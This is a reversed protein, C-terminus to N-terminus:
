FGEKLNPFDKLIDKALVNTFLKASEGFMHHGDPFQYDSPQYFYNLYPVELMGAIEKIKHDFDPYANEEYEWLEQVVPLRVIFVQGHEKLFCITKQFFEERVPSQKPEWEVIKIRMSDAARQDSSLRLEGWGDKHNVSYLSNDEEHVPSLLSPVFYEFLSYAGNIPFRFFYEINPHINKNWVKYFFFEKERLNGWNNAMELLSAPTVSLIFVGDKKHGPVKQKIAQFYQPGYPSTNSNFAFNLFSSPVELEQTLVSPVLNRKARSVGMILYGSQHTSKSYYQDEKQFYFYKICIFPVGALLFLLSLKLILFRM